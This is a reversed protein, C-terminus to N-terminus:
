PLLATLAEALTSLVRLWAQYRECEEPLTSTKLLASLLPIVSRQGAAAARLAEAKAVPVDDQEAATTARLARLAGPTQDDLARALEDLRARRAGLEMKPLALLLPDLAPPFYALVAPTLVEVAGAEDGARLHAIGVTVRLAPWHPNKELLGDLVKVDPRGGCQALRQQALFAVFDEGALALRSLEAEFGDGCASPALYMPACPDIQELAVVGAGPRSFTAYRADV